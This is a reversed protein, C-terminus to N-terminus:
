VGLGAEPSGEVRLEVASSRATGSTSVLVATAVLAALLSLAVATTGTRRTREATRAIFGLILAPVAVLYAYLSFFYTPALILSLLGLGVSIYGLPRVDPEQQSTTPETTPV